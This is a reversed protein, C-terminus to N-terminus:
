NARRGSCKGASASLSGGRTLEKNLLANREALALNEQLSLSLSDVDSNDM